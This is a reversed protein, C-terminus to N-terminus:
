TAAGDDTPRSTFRHRVEPRTATPELVFVPDVYESVVDLAYLLRGDGRVRSLVVYHPPSNGLRKRPRATLPYGVIRRQGRGAHERRM